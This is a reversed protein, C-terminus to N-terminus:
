VELLFQTTNYPAVPVGHRMRQKLSKEAQKEERVALRRREDHSLKNFPKWKKRGRGRRRRHKKKPGEEKKAKEGSSNKEPDFSCSPLDPGSEAANPPPAESTAGIPPPNSSKQVEPNTEDRKRKRRGRTEVGLSTEAKQETSSQLPESM